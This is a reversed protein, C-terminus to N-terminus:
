QSPCVNSFRSRFSAASGTTADEAYGSVETHEPTPHDRVHANPTDQRSATSLSGEHGTNMEQLM